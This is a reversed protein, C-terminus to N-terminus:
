RCRRAKVLDAIVVAIVLMSGVLGNMALMMTTGMSESSVLQSFVYAFGCAAPIFLAMFFIVL